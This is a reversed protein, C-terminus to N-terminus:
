RSKVLAAESQLSWSDENEVSLELELEYQKGVTGGKM